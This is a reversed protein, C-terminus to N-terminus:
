FIIKYNLFDQKQDKIKRRTACKDSHYIGDGKLWLQNNQFFFFFISEFGSIAVFLALRLRSPAQTKPPHTAMRKFLIRQFGGIIGLLRPYFYSFVVMPSFFESFLLSHYSFPLSFFFSFCLEM